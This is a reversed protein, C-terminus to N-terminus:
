QGAAKVQTRWYDPDAYTTPDPDWGADHLAEAREVCTGCRGCHVEGGEYCSWTLGVPVDLTKAFRAIDTKTRAVFPADIHIGCGAFTAHDLAVIFEPRCDAYIAHDGAHVATVVRELGLSVAVGAAASLMVANRNPVVTAAMTEAAYHGHPVEIDHNTLASTAVNKGYSTLDLPYLPIGYHEAIADASQRERIHRQGYDVFVAADAAAFAVLTSSDLGGSLLALTM